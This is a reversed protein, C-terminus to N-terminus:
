TLEELGGLEQIKGKFKVLVVFGRRGCGKWVGEEAGRGCGESREDSVESM